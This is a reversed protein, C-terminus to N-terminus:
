LASLLGVRLGASSRNGAGRAGAPSLAYRFPRCFASSSSHFTHRPFYDFIPPDLPSSGVVEESRIRVNTRWSVVGFFVPSICQERKRSSQSKVLSSRCTKQM